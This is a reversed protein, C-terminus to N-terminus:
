RSAEVRELNKKYIGLNRNNEITGLEVAKTYSKIAEAILGQKELSEGYSDYVNSSNPFLQVNYKFIKAAEEFKNKGLWQYGIANIQVENPKVEFGYKQNLSYYHKKIAELGKDITEKNLGWDSFIFELGDYLSKLPVSAHNETERKSIELSIKKAKNSLINKLASINESYEPEDGLTIFISKRIESQEFLISDAFQVVYNEGYQLYPSVSIFSDFMEPKKFLTYISFMGCLSHGFLTRYSHTRYNHDVYPILEKDMFELFKNAGGSTKSRAEHIPTFDRIRDTNTIGVVISRPMHQIRSLFNVVGIGYIFNVRADLIYIVPYKEKSQKYGVPLYVFIDRNENLIKSSLTIIKGLEINKGNEKASHNSPFAFLFFILASLTLTKFNSKKM